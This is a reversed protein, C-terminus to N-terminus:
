EKFAERAVVAVHVPHVPLDEVLERPVRSRVVGGVEELRSLVFITVGLRVWLLEQVAQLWVSQTNM